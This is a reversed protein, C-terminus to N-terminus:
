AVLVARPAIRPLFLQGISQETLFGYILFMVSPPILIGLTGGAAVCGTALKANYGVKRMEPLAITGMTAATALSSGCIAAFGGCAVVPARALGGRVLGSWRTAR